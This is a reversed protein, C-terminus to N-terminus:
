WVLWNLFACKTVPRGDAGPRNCVKVIDHVLLKSLFVRTMRIDLLYLREDLVGLDRRAAVTLMESALTPLIRYDGAAHGCIQRDCSNWTWCADHHLAEHRM